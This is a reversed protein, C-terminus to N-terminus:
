PLGLKYFSYNWTNFQNEICRVRMRMRKIEKLKCYISVNINIKSIKFWLDHSILTTPILNSCLLYWLWFIYDVNLNYVYSVLTNQVYLKRKFLLNLKYNFLYIKTNFNSIIHDSVCEVIINNGNGTETAYNVIDM